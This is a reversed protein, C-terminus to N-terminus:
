NHTTAIQSLLAEWKQTAIPKDFHAEFVHRARMGMALRTKPDTRFKRIAAVLEEVHGTRVALGIGYRSLISPIDGAPDGIFISPRGAAAIGYFKSPVVLGDLAPLLSVLHIDAVGLSRALAERKQYPKLIVNALGRRSV